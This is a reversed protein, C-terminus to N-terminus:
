NPCHKKGANCYRAVELVFAVTAEAIGTPLNSTDSNHLRPPCIPGHAEVM